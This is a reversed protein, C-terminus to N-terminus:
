KTFGAYTHRPLSSGRHLLSCSSSAACSLLCLGSLQHAPFFFSNILRSETVRSSTSCVQHACIEASGACFGGSTCLANAMSGMIIDVDSGPVDFAETIGRGAEGLVGFSWTEDLVLRYKFSQKLELLRHLDVVQGDMEFLAETVIFRRTLPKRRHDNQIRRLVRELDELDNHDYWYVTSRSIQIGRQIAFNVGRDAVIIDGRKAFAALVSAVTSFAHAYIVSAEVGLFQALSKELQMHVDFTGYFGPPGCSGVGYGRLCEIAKEKIRENDVLGSFNASALNIVTTPETHGAPLVKPRLTPAGIITPPQFSDSPEEVTLPEPHWDDM